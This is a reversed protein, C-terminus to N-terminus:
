EEECPLTPPPPELPMWHTARRPIDNRGVAFMAPLEVGGRNKPPSRPYYLLVDERFRQEPTLPRWRM